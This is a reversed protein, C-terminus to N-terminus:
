YLKDRGSDFDFTPNLQGRRSDNVRPFVNPNHLSQGVSKSGYPGTMRSSVPPIRGRSSQFLSSASGKPLFVFLAGENAMRYEFGQSVLFQQVMPKIVPGNSSHKGRGTIILLRQGMKLRAENQLLFSHLKVTAEKVYYGHLDLQLVTSEQILGDHDPYFNSFTYANSEATETLRSFLWTLFKWIGLVAVRTINIILSAIERIMFLFVLLFRWAVTRVLKGANYEHYQPDAM